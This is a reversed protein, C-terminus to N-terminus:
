RAGYGTLPFEIKDGWNKQRIMEKYLLSNILM